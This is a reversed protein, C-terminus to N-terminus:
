KIDSQQPTTIALDAKDLQQMVNIATRRLTPNSTYSQLREAIYGPATFIRSLGNGETELDFHRLIILPDNHQCFAAVYQQVPSYDNNNFQGWRHLIFGLHPQKHLV